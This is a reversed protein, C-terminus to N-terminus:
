LASKPHRTLEIVQSYQWNMLFVRDFKSAVSFSEVDDGIQYSASASGTDLAIVLWLQDCGSKRMTQTKADKKDVVEQVADLGVDPM